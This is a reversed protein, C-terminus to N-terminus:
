VVACLKVIQVSCSLRCCSVRFLCLSAFFFFVFVGRVRVCAMYVYAMCVRSYSYSYSYICLVYGPVPASSRAQLRPM